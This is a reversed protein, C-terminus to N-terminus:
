GSGVPILGALARSAAEAQAICDPIGSGRYGAGALVIPGVDLLRQEISRVLDLHGVRYQPIARDWRVVRSSLPPATAKMTVQIDRDVKAVLDDDRVGLSEGAGARGVVCRVVQRGDSTIHPWKTSYWTCASITLDTGSPVLFGSGDDPVEYTGPPYVLTVVALSAYTISSLEEAAAPAADALLKASVAPPCALVFGDFREAEEHVLTMTSGDVELREAPAKLRLDDLRAALADTVHEIGDEPALFQPEVVEQARLARLVSKHQRALADIERAAAGLSMEDAIGGRVGALLPDVLNNLVENGFRSRVFSGVSIDPGSLPSRNFREIEARLRGMFSLLGTSRAESPVRPIGYPSGPPLRKLAGEHWIFAGFVAPSRTKEIGLERLLDLPMADRPLFADAGEEVRIGGVESSRLKGGPRDSAEFVTVAYGNQQSRYAALLGTIGGGVVAIRPSM